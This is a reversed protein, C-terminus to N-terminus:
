WCQGLTILKSPPLALDGIAWRLVHYGVYAEHRAAPGTNPVRDEAIARLRRIEREITAQKKSSM